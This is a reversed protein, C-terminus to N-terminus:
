GAVMGMAVLMERAIQACRENYAEAERATGDAAKPDEYRLSVRARAGPVIPCAAEASACTMVAVFGADPNPAEDVLKSFCEVGPDAEGCRVRVRPNEGPGREVGFGARELADVARPNFATVETGGSYARVGNVGHWAAAARAWVQGMQSRRSNHSCVFILEATGDHALAARVYQALARLGERRSAPVRGAEGARREIYARLGPCFRGREM